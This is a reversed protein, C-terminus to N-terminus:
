QMNDEEENESTFIDERYNDKINPASPMPTEYRRLNYRPEQEEVLDM